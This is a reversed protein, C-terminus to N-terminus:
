TLWPGADLNGNIRIFIRPIGHGLNERVRISSKLDLNAHSALDKNPNTSDNLYFGGGLQALFRIKAIQSGSYLLTAEPRLRGKQVM